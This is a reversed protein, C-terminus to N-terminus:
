EDSLGSLIRGLYCSAKLGLSGRLTALPFLTSIGSACCISRALSAAVTRGLLRSFLPAVHFPSLALCSDM